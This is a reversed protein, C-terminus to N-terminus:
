TGYVASLTIANPHPPHPTIPGPGLIMNICICGRFIYIHMHLIALSCRAGLLLGVWSAYGVRCAYMCFLASVYECFYGCAYGFAYMCFLASVYMCAYECAYGFAYVSVVASAWGWVAGWFVSCFFDIVKYLLLYQILYHIYFQKHYNIYYALTAVMWGMSVGCSTDFDFISVLIKPAPLAFYQSTNQTNAISM